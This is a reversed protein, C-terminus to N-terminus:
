NKKLKKLNKVKKPGRGEVTQANASKKVLITFKKSKKILKQTKNEARKPHTKFFVPKKQIKWNKILFFTFFLSIKSLKLIKKVKKIIKSKEPGFFPWFRGFVPNQPTRSPDFDVRESM